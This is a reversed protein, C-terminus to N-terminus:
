REMLQWYINYGFSDIAVLAPFSRVELKLLAEPGLDAYAVTEVATIHRALYAGAGGVTALYVAGYERMAAVVEPSRDGKGIMVRLGQALLESTYPDMRGSTTPGASGIVRGPPAPCPGTYYFIQGRINLPLAQGKKAATFLRQHAQDRAAYMIGEILVEDGAKLSRLEQEELPARLIRM